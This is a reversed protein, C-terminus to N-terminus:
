LTHTVHMEDKVDIDVSADFKTYTVEKVLAAAEDISYTKGKEIKALSAKMNKTIRGM